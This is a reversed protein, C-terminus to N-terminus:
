RRTRRARSDFGHRFAADGDGIGHPDVVGPNISVNKACPHFLPSDDRQYSVAHHTIRGTDESGVQRDPALADCRWRRHGSQRKYIPLLWNAASAHRYERVINNYEIIITCRENWRCEHIVNNFEARLLFPELSPDHFFDLAAM